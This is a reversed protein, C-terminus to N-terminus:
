AILCLTPILIHKGHLYQDDPNEEDESTYVFKSNDDFQESMEEIDDMDGGFNEKNNMTEYHTQINNWRGSPGILNQKGAEGKSLKLFNKNNGKPYNYASHRNDLPTRPDSAPSDFDLKQGAVLNTRNSQEITQEPTDQIDEVEADKGKNM